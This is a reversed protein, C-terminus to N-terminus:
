LYSLRPRDSQETLHAWNQRFMTDRRSHIFFGYELLSRMVLQANFCLRQIARSITSSSAADREESTQAAALWIPRRCVTGVRVGVLGGAVGTGGVAVSPAGVSAGLGAVGVGSDLFSLGREVEKGIAAGTADAVARDARAASGAAVATAIASAPKGADPAFRVDRKIEAATRAMRTERVSSAQSYRRM